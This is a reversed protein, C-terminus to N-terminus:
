NRLERVTAKLIAVEKVQEPDNINFVKLAKNLNKEAEALKSEARAKRAKNSLVSEIRDARSYEAKYDEIGVLSGKWFDVAELLTEVQKETLELKM